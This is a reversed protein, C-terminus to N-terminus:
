ILAIEASACFKGIHNRTGHLAFLNKSYLGEKMPQIENVDICTRSVSCTTLQNTKLAEGLEVEYMGEIDRFEYETRHIVDSRHYPIEVHSEPSHRHTFRSFGDNAMVTQTFLPDGGHWISVPISMIDYATVDSTPPSVDLNQAAPM